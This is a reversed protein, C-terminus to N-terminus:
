IYVGLNHSKLADTIDETTIEVEDTPTQWWNNVKHNTRYVGPTTIAFNGNTIGGGQMVWKSGIKKFLFRFDNM